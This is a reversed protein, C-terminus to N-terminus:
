GNWIVPGGSLGEKAEQQLYLETGRVTSITTRFVSFTGLSVPYGAVTVDTGTGASGAAVELAGVNAPARDVVLLALGDMRGSQLDRVEATLAADEPAAHFTVLPKPDGEVVHACTVIYARGARVAVVFGTGPSRDKASVRVVGAQWDTSQSLGLSALLSFLCLLRM